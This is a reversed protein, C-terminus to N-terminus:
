GQFAILSVKSGSLDSVSNERKIIVSDKLEEYLSNLESENITECIRSLSPANVRTMEMEAWHQCELLTKIVQEAQIINELDLVEYPRTQLWEDDDSIPDNTDWPSSSFGYIPPITTIIKSQNLNVDQKENPSNDKKAKNLINMAEEVRQYEERAELASKAISIIPSSVIQIPPASSDKSSTKSPDYQMLNMRRSSANVSSDGVRIRSKGERLSPDILDLIANRGRRTACHKSISEVLPFLDLSRTIKASLVNGHSHVYGDENYNEQAFLSTPM